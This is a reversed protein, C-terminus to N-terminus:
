LTDIGKTASMVVTDSLSSEDLDTGIVVGNGKEAAKTVSDTMAGGSVFIAETGDKYWQAAMNQTEESAASSGAYAYRMEVKTETEAAAAAAGQVFGYGYRKVYPLEQGGMFGLKTYGGKVAAYGAMYGAEEEAFVISVTNAATSYNDKEDHPVGDVLLFKIDPYAKQADYAATELSSGALVIVKAGDEAASKVSALYGEKTAEKPEYSKAATENEDAFSQVSSWTLKSFANDNIEPSESIMAIECDKDEKAEQKQDNGCATMAALLVILGLVVILKRM